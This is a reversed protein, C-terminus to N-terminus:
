QLWLCLDVVLLISELSFLEKCAEDTTNKEDEIDVVEDTQGEGEIIESAMNPPRKNSMYLVFAAYTRNPNDRSM